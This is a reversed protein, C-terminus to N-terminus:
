VVFLDQPYHLYMDAIYYQLHTILFNLLFNSNQLTRIKFDTQKSQINMEPHYYMRM